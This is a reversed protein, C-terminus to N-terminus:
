TTARLSITRAAEVLRNLAEALDSAEILSLEEGGVMVYPGDVRHDPPGITACLRVLVDHVWISRSVHVMDEEGLLEGHRRVCWAPCSSPRHRPTGM